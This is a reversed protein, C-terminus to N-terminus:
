IFDGNAAREAIRTQARAVSPAIGQEKAEMLPGDRHIGQRHRELDHLRSFSRTCKSHPCEHPRPRAPDHTSAHSQRVILLTLSM